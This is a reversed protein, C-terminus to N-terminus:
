AETIQVSDDSINYTLKIKYTIQEEKPTALFVVKESNAGELSVEITANQTELGTSGDYGVGIYEAISAADWNHSAHSSGGQISATLYYARAIARFNNLDSITATRASSKVMGNYIQIGGWIALGVIVVSIVVLLVQQTGM